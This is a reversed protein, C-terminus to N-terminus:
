AILKKLKKKLFFKKKFLNLVKVSDKKLYATSIENNQALSNQM